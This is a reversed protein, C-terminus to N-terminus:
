ANREHSPQMPKLTWQLARVPTAKMEAALEFSTDFQDQELERVDTHLQVCKQSFPWPQLRIVSSDNKDMRATIIEQREAFAVPEHFSSDGMAGLLWLSLYDFYAVLRRALQLNQATVAKRHENPQGMLHQLHGAILMTMQDIFRQTIQLEHPTSERSFHTYLWRAHQAILLSVLPKDPEILDVSERWVQLHSETPMRKFGYPKGKPDLPPEDELLQWGDDHRATADVIAQWSQPTFANPADWARAIQASTTAHDRQRVLLLRGDGQEIVIM